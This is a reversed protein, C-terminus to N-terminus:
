EVNIQRTVKQARETKPINLKLVGEEYRAVVKNPDVSDDLTFTHSFSQQKYEQRIWGEKGEEKHEEKHEFSVTLRNNEINIQFDKKQLGPAVVQVEYSKDNEKINVPVRNRFSSLDKPFDDFFRSLNHQFLQDVFSGFTAPQNIDRKTIDTKM